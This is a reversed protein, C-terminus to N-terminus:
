PHPDSRIYSKDNRSNCFHLSFKGTRIQALIIIPLFHTQKYLIMAPCVSCTFKPKVVNVRMDRANLEM